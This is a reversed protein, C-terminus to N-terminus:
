ECLRLFLRFHRLQLFEHAGVHVIYILHKPGCSIREKLLLAFLKLYLALAVFQVFVRVHEVPQFEVHLLPFLLLFLHLRLMCKLVLIRKLVRM